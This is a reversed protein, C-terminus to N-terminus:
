IHQELVGQKRSAMARFDGVLGKVVGEQWALVLFFAFAFAWKVAVLPYFTPCLPFEIFVALSYAILLGAQLRTRVALVCVATLWVAFQVSWVKGFLLFVLLLLAMSLLPKKPNKYSYVCLFLLIIGMMALMPYEMAHADLSLYRTIIFQISSTSPNRYMHFTYSKFFGKGFLLISPVVFALLTAFFVGIRAFFGMSGKKKGDEVGPSCFPPLMVFPFWKVMTSIALSFTAWGARKRTLLYISVLVCLTPVADYRFLGFYDVVPSLAYIGTLAARWRGSRGARGLISWILCINACNVITMTLMFWDFYHGGFANALLRPVIMFVLALQPYEITFDRYPMHGGLVATAYRNYLAIDSGTISTLPFTISLVCIDKILLSLLVLCLLVLFERDKLRRAVRGVVTEKISEPKQAMTATM